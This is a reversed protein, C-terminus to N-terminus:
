PVVFIMQTLNSFESGLTKVYVGDATLEVIHNYYSGSVLLNGNARQAVSTPSRLKASDQYTGLVTTLDPSLIQITDTTGSWSVAVKGDNLVRCGTADTTGAIGSVASHLLMGDSDYLAVIDSGTSCLVFGGNSTSRIESGAIQLSKPWGNSTVRTGDSNFREINNGEVILIDGNLLQTIGRLSGSLGPNIIAIRQTADKASVALVRDAGDVTILVENSSQSFTIGWVREISYDINALTAKYKGESSLLLIGGNGSNSIVIDGSAILNSSVAESQKSESCGLVAFLLLFNIIKM